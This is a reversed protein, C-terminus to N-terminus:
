QTNAKTKNAMEALKKISTLSKIAEDLAYEPMEEMMVLAKNIKEKKIPYQLVMDGKGTALWLASVGCADAFQATFESGRANGTEIKSINAQSTQALEALTAQSIGAYIRAAELRQGYKM